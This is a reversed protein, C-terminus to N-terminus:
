SVSGMAGHHKAKVLSRHRRIALAFPLVIALAGLIFNLPFPWTDVIVAAGVVCMSAFLVFHLKAWLSVPPNKGTPMPPAGTKPNACARCKAHAHRGFSAEPSDHLDRGPPSNPQTKVLSDEPQQNIGGALGSAFDPRFGQPHANHSSIGGSFSQRPNM